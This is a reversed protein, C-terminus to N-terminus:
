AAKWGLIRGVAAIGAAAVALDVHLSEGQTRTAGTSVQEGILRREPRSFESFTRRILPLVDDFAGEPVAAVWDDVLSLLGPDHVLVIASGALFGELWGAADAPDLAPSLWIGMQRAVEDRAVRGADLLMRTAMGALLGPVNDRQSVTELAGFWSNLLEDDEILTLGAHASDVAAVLVSAMEDDVGAAAMPLGVCARTVMARLVTDVQSTDLERVTSYRTVQALPAISQLLGIVDTHVASRDALLKVVDHVPLEATLCSSILESLEQLSTAEEALAVAKAAAAGEVTTGFLSAEILAVSLEPEWTLQWTEKFTGTTRGASTPIGWDIGLLRLRYLLISRALGGPTRLDLTVTQTSSSPKLRTSRQAAALDAALPVLPAHEPVSGLDHGVVLHSHVLRLPLENGDALVSLAADDLESLGPSPRGRLSALTAALRAAEIVSATSADLGDARLERAVRVLWGMSADQGGGTQWHEFLHRYWGPSSVGAGYGSAISLRSATWPVWAASVKVKPLGRLLRNDAAQPPFAGPQLAPAHWAGCVVVIRHRGDKIAQRLVKRMAAERVATMTGGLRDTLADLNLTGDDLVPPEPEVADLRLEAISDSIAAFRDLASGSRQEVADEWWREPDDYGAAAALAGIPDGRRPPTDGATQGDRDPDLADAASDDQEDRADEQARNLEDSVARGIALGHVAPLDLFRQEIGHAAAWRMAVWEPSFSAMPYFTSLAPADTSYILAAVPPVLAPDGALATLEDLEPAGEILVLDPALEDLAEAVSRASGPGHHRIGLVHVETM